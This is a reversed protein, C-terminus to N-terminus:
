RGLRRGDARIARLRGGGAGPAQAHDDRRGDARRRDRRRVVVFEGILTLVLPPCFGGLWFLFSAGMVSQTVTCTNLVVLDAQRREAVAELGKASLMTELAAGDAQTARCGFNQVFFKSVREIITISSQLFRYIQYRGVAGFRGWLMSPSHM